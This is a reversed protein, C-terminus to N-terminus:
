SDALDSKGMELNYTEVNQCFRIGLDTLRANQHQIGHEANQTRESLLGFEILKREHLIILGVVGHGAEKAMLQTWKEYSRDSPYTNRVGYSLKLLFLEGSSLSKAIQWLQYAAIHEGDSAGVKNVAYFMAKLAELKDADPAEEDIITMLEVWTQFGYKKEAFDPALRGAARLRNFEAAWQQYARGKLIAHVMRGGSAMTGRVGDGLFGTLTEAIVTAPDDLIEEFILPENLKAINSYDRRKVVLSHEKAM